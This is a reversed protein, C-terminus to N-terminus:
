VTAEFTQKKTLKNKSYHKSSHSLPNDQTKNTITIIM